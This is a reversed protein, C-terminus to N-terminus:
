CTKRQNRVMLIERKVEKIEFLIYSHDSLSIEDSVRWEGLDAAVTRTALTIDIVEERVANRFTPKKGRNLLCLETGALFELLREGISNIDTSGWVCHHANADCGLVLQHREVESLRILERVGPPPPNKIADYPFYASGVLLERSRGENDRYKVRAVALDRGCLNGLTEM